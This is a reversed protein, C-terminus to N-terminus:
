CVAYQGHSSQSQTSFHTAGILTVSSLLVTKKHLIFQENFESSSPDSM